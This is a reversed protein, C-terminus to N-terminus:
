NRRVSGWVGFEEVYELFRDTASSTSVLDDQQQAMENLMIITKIPLEHKVSKSIKEVEPDAFSGLSKLVAEIQEGPQIKPVNLVAHFTSLMQMEELIGVNSTTGIILLKKGKKSKKLCVHLTQLVANSFRHGIPVYELLREIDDLVVVSLPSKYTDQFVKAIKLCKASESYGVMDEASILRMLPFKSDKALTAALATKGSGVSGELL